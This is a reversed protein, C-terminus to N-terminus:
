CDSWKHTIVTNRKLTIVLTAHKGSGLRAFKTNCTHVCSFM